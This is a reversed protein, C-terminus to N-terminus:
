LSFISKRKGQMAFKEGGGIKDQIIAMQGNGLGGAEEQEGLRSEEKVEGHLELLLWAM